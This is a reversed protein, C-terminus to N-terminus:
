DHGDGDFIPECEWEVLEKEYAAITQEAVHRTGVVRKTCVQAQSWVFRLTLAGFSKGLSFLGHETHKKCSGLARAVAKLDDRTYVSYVDISDLHPVPIDPHACYWDAIQRLGDAYEEATM